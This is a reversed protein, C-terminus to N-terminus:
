LAIRGEQMRKAIAKGSATLTYVMIQAKNACVRRSAFIKHRTGANMSRRADELPLHSRNAIDPITYERDLGKHSIMAKIATMINKDMM